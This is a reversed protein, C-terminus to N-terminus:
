QAGGQHVVGVDPNNAGFNITVTNKVEGRGFYVRYECEAVRRTLHVFGLDVM